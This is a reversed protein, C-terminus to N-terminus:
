NEILLRMYLYENTRAGTITERDWMLCVKFGIQLLFHASFYLRDFSVPQRISTRLIDYWIGVRESVMELRERARM